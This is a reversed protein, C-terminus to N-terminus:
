QLLMHFNHRVVKLLIERGVGMNRNIHQGVMLHGELTSSSYSFRNYAIHYKNVKFFMQETEASFYHRYTFLSFLCIQEKKTKIGSGEFKMTM